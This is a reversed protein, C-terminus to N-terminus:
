DDCLLVMRTSNEQYSLKRLDSSNTVDTIEFHGMSLYFYLFGM